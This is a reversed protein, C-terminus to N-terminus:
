KLVWNKIQQGGLPMFYWNVLRPNVLIQANDYFLPFIYAEDQVLIKEARAYYAKRLEPDLCDRAKRVIQSYAKNTFYIINNPMQSHLQDYLFNNADPYHCHWGFSYMHSQPNVSDYTLDEQVPRCKLTINLYNKLFLSVANAIVKNTHTDHYSLSIEPFGEGNPFGAAKLFQKAKEINYPIGINKDYSVSGFVFPPSFSLATQENGRTIFSIIMKRDVASIIAKRVLPDNVPSLNTNFVFGYTKLLPFSHYHDRLLPNSQVSYLHSRPIPLYKGGIIDIDENLYMSLGLVSDQIFIYRIEEINVHQKDYYNPNKRLIMMADRISLAFQYPGSTVIHQPKTWHEGYTKITEVPLPKFSNLTTLYPFFSSPKELFFVLHENDIAKVGLKSLDTLEKHYIKEANKIVFLTSVHPCQTEPRIHHKIAWEIDYATIPQNNTWVADERLKFRYKQGNNFAKWEVALDPVVEYTEPHFTTLGSFLQDVIEVSSENIAYTPDLITLNDKIPISVTIDKVLDYGDIFASNYELIDFKGSKMRKFFIQRPQIVGNRSIDYEGLVGQWQNMFRITSNVVIPQTSASKNIVHALFCVMDYSKAAYNDPLVSFKSQFAKIFSQTNQKRLRINFCTAVITNDSAKGANTWHDNIDIRNTTLIPQNIGIERMQKILHTVGPIKGSLFIADFTHNMKIDSLIFRYDSDMTSYFKEAVIHLGSEIAKENFVEAFRKTSPSIDYLIVISHYKNRKSFLTIAQSLTEDTPSFKFIYSGGFRNIDAGPSIFLINNAKYTVSVSVAIEPDRHGIVALINKQASLQSAIRTAISLSNQDDYEIIRVQKGHIGGNDNIRDVALRIGKFFQTQSKFSDVVAIQIRTDKQVAKGRQEQSIYAPLFFQYALVILCFILCITIYIYKLSTM